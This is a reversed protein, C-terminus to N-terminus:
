YLGGYWRLGEEDVKRGHLDKQAFASGRALAVAGSGAALALLASVAFTCCTLAISPVAYVSACTTM